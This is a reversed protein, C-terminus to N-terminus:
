WKRGPRGTDNVSQGTLWHQANDWITETRPNGSTAYCATPTRAFESATSIPEWATTGPAYDSNQLQREEQGTQHTSYKKDGHSKPYSQRWNM